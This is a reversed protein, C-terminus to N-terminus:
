SRRAKLLLIEQAGCKATEPVAAAPTLASSTTATALSPLPPALPEAATGQSSVPPSASAPPASVPESTVTARTPASNPVPATEGQTTERTVTQQPPALLTPPSLSPTKQEAAPEPALVVETARQPDADPDQQPSSSSSGSPTQPGPLAAQEQPTEPPPLLHEVPPTVDDKSDLSQYVQVDQHPIDIGGPQEPKTKYPGEAVITPIEGPRLPTPRNFLYRLGAGGVLLLIAM